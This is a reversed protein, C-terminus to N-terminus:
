RIMSSLEVRRPTSFTSQLFAMVSFSCRGATDDTYLACLKQPEQVRRFLFLRTARAAVLCCYALFSQSISVLPETPFKKRMDQIQYALDSDEDVKRQEWPSVSNYNPLKNLAEPVPRQSVDSFWLAM